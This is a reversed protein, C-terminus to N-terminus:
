QLKKDEFNSRMSPEHKGCETMYRCGVMQFPPSVSPYIYLLHPSGRGTAVDGSYINTVLGVKNISFFILIRYQIM